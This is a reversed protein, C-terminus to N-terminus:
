DDCCMADTSTRLKTAATIAEELHIITEDIEACKIETLVRENQDFKDWHQLKHNSNLSNREFMVFETIAVKEINKNHVLKWSQNDTPIQHYIKVIKVWKNHERRANQSTEISTIRNFDDTNNVFEIKIANLGYLYTYASSM